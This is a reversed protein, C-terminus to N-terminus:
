IRKLLKEEEQGEQLIKEGERSVAAKGGEISVWGNRKAWPLGIRKEDDTLEDLSKGQKLKKVLNFEPFGLELFKKGEEGLEYSETVNEQIEVAGKEKLWYGARTASDRNLNTDRALEELTKSGKKLSHLVAKEYQHLM